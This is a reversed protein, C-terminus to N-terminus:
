YIALYRFTTEGTGLDFGLCSYSGSKRAATACIMKSPALTLSHWVDPEFNPHDFFNVRLAPLSSSSREIEEQPSRSDFEQIRKGYTYKRSWTCPPVEFGM